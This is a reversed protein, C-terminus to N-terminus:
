GRSPAPAAPEPAKARGVRWALVAAATALLAAAAYAERTAAAFAARGPENMAHVLGAEHTRTAVLAAMAAAGCSLGVSRATGQLGSALGLRAGPVQSLVLSTNPVAFLGQGVGVLALGASIRLLEERTTLGALLALGFATLAMGSTTLRAPGLRDSLRGALPAILLASLPLVGFWRGSRAADWGLVGELYLPLHFGVSAGILQSVLTLALGGGLAGRLLRVPLLPDTLRRQRAVFSLLAVAAFAGLLGVRVSTWGAVPGQSLALLAATLAGCWLAVSVADPAAVGPAPRDDPIRSRLLGWALLGVPLNIAFIWRWSAGSVILGGLVPGLALGAGVMAGFAGLVRGREGAPFSAVLLASGNASVLAAGVGQVVRAVILWRVSPALACLASAAVFLLLGDGYTRRRGRADALRGAALLLGTLTLGYGLVVWELTPLPAEFARGLTPLAINVVSVDLTAM